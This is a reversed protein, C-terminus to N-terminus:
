RGRELIQVYGTGSALRALAGVLESRRLAAEWGLVV